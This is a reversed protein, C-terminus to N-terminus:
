LQMDPATRRGMMPCLIRRAKLQNAAVVPEERTVTRLGNWLTQETANM